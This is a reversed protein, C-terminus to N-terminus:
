VPLKARHTLNLARAEPRGLVAVQHVGVCGARSVQLDM